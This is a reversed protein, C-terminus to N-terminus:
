HMDIGQTSFDFEVDANKQHVMDVHSQLLVTQRNEMGSTAPKRIIINGTEDQITELGLGEGFSHVFQVVREEKKSARPVANLDAFHNWLPTPLLTRIDM